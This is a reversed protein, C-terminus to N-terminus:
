WAAWIATCLRLLTCFSPLRELARFHPRSKRVSLGQNEWALWIEIAQEFRHDLRHTLENLTRAEIELVKRATQLSMADANMWARHYCITAVLSSPCRKLM